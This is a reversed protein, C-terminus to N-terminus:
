FVVATGSHWRGECDCRREEGENCGFGRVRLESKVTDSGNYGSGFEKRCGRSIFILFLFHQVSCIRVLRQICTSVSDENTTEILFCFGCRGMGVGIWLLEGSWREEEGRGVYREPGRHINGSCRADLDSSIVEM